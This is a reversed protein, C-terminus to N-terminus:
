GYLALSLEDRLFDADLALGRSANECFCQPSHDVSEESLATSKPPPAGLRSLSISYFCISIGFHSM